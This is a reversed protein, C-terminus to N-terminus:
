RGPEADVAWGAPLRRVSDIEDLVIANDRVTPGIVRYGRETLISILQDLGTGDLTTAM